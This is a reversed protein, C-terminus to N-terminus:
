LQRMALCSSYSRPRHTLWRGRGNCGVAVDRDVDRAQAVGGHVCRRKECRAPVDAIRLLIFEAGPLASLARLQPIISESFVSGDFTALIKM